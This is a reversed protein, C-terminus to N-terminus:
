FKVYSFVRTGDPRTIRKRVRLEGTKSNRYVSRNVSGLPAKVHVKRGTTTWTGNIAHTARLKGKIQKSKGGKQQNCLDDNPEIALHAKLSAKMRQMRADIGEPDFLEMAEIGQRVYVCDPHLTNGSKPMLCACVYSIISSWTRKETLFRHLRETDNFVDRFLMVFLNAVKANEEKIDTKNKGWWRGGGSMALLLLCGASSTKVSLIICVVLLVLFLIVLISVGGDGGLQGGAVMAYQQQGFDNLEVSYEDFLRQEQICVFMFALKPVYTKRWKALFNDDRPSLVISRFCKLLDIAAGEMNGRNDQPLHYSDDDGIVLEELSESGIDQLFHLKDDSTLTQYYTTRIFRHYIDKVEALCPQLGPRTVCTNNMYMNRIRDYESNMIRHYYALISKKRLGMKEFMGEVLMCHEQLLVPFDPGDYAPGM